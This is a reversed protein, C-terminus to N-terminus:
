ALRAYYQFIIQRQIRGLCIDAGKVNDRMQRMGGTTTGRANCQSAQMSMCWNADSQM